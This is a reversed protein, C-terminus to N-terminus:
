TQAVGKSEDSGAKERGSGRFIESEAPLTM